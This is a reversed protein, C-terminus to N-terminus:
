RVVAVTLVPGSAPRYAGTTQDLPTRLGAATGRLFHVIQKLGHPRLGRLARTLPQLVGRVVVEHILIPGIRVDLTKFLKAYTAGIGFWDRRTLARGEYWTRFGHHTVSAEATTVVAWGHMLARLAIDRDEGSRFPAGPGLMEDFGGFALVADRRVAMGAGIGEILSKLLPSRITRTRHVAHRPIFGASEDHHAAKVECFAVAVDSRGALSEAFDAAWTPGVTVDDDTIFVLQNRAAAIGVNRAASVGRTSSHIHTLRDDDAFEDLLDTVGGASQDVVILEIAIRESALLSAVTDRLTARRGKTGIVVSVSLTNEGFPPHPRALRFRDMVPAVPVPVGHSGGRRRSGERHRREGHNPRTVRPFPVKVRSSAGESM